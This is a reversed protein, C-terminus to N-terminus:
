YKSFESYQVPMETATKCLNLNLFIIKQFSYGM